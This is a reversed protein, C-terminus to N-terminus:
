STEKVEYKLTHMPMIVDFSVPEPAPDMVLRADIRLCLAREAQTAPQLVATIGTLRPEFTRITSEIMQRLLNQDNPNGVNLASFDPLGYTLV